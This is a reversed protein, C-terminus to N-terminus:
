VLRRCIDNFAMRCNNVEYNKKAILESDPKEKDVMEIKEMIIDYAPKMSDESALEPIYFCTSNDTVFEQQHTFTLAGYNQIEKLGIAGTDYFSFYLIFKSDNAWEMMKKKDYSGYEMKVVNKGSKNLLELLEKGQKSHDIDAYKEFYLIDITRDNFSKVSDPKLNTCARVNIYKDILSTTNSRGAIHDRVRDSHIVYGKVSKLIEPFNREKWSKPNPFTYWNSPIYNPGIILKNTRNYKNWENYENESLGPFSFYYYDAKNLIDSPKISYSATFLCNGTRYPLVEKLSRNFSFPGSQKSAKSPNVDVEILIKNDFDGSFDNRYNVTNFYVISYKIFSFMIFLFIGLLINRRTDKKM